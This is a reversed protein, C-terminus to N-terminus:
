QKYFGAAFVVGDSKQWYMSKPEVRKSVPNFYKYDQWGSDKTKAAELRDALFHVGDTDRVEIFNRGVMRQNIHALCNGKMDYVTVYLDRDVFSGKTNSFEALAKDRGNKQYYVIAKKVLSEAEPATGKDVAASADISAAMILPAVLALIAKM